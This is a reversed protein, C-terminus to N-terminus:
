FRRQNNIINKKLKYLIQNSNIQELTFWRIALKEKYQEEKMLKLNEQFQECLNTIFISYPFKVFWIYILKNEYGKDTLLVCDGSVIKHRVFMLETEFIKASEENFERIATNTINYDDPEYKGIFGSWKKNYKEYGLLFHIGGNQDKVYPIVGGAANDM